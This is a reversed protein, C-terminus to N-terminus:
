GASSHELYTGAPNSSPHTQSPSRPAHPRRRRTPAEAQPHRRAPPADHQPRLDSPSSRAPSTHPLPRPASAGETRKVRGRRTVAGAMESEAEADPVNAGSTQRQVCATAGRAAPRSGACRPRPPTRTPTPTPTPPPPPSQHQVVLTARSTVSLDARRVIINRSCFAHAAAAAAVVEREDHSPQAEISREHGTQRRSSM